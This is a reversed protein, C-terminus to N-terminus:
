EDNFGEPLNSLTNILIDRGKWDTPITDIAEIVSEVMAVVHNGCEFATPPRTHEHPMLGIKMTPWWSTFDKESLQDRYMYIQKKEFTHKPKQLLDIIAKVDSDYLRNVTKLEAGFIAAKVAEISYKDSM